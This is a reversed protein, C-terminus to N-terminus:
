DREELAEVRRQLNTILDDHMGLRRQHEDVAYAMASLGIQVKVMWDRQADSLEDLNTAKAVAVSDNMRRSALKHYTLAQGEHETAYLMRYGEGRVNVVSRRCEEWLRRRAKVALRRLKFMDDTDLATLLTEDKVTEGPQLQAFFDFIVRWEARGDARKPQFGKM